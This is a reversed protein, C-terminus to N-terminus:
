RCGRRRRVCLGEVLEHEIVIAGAGPFGQSMSGSYSSFDSGPRRGRRTRPLDDRVAGSCAAISTARGSPWCLRIVWRKMRGAPEGRRSMWVRMSSARFGGGAGRRQEGDVHPGAVGGVVDGEAVDLAGRVAVRRPSRALNSDQACRQISRESGPKPTARSLSPLYPWEHSPFTM